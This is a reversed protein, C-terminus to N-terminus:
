KFRKPLESKNQRFLDLYGGEKCLSYFIGDEDNLLNAPSDFQKVTGKDLVLIRDSDIITDIRHAITLITKDKFQSRIAAQVIKDTQVDVAATAEDLILVKSPNLLARALSLLQKQGSSLNSGNDFVKANLGTDFEDEAESEDNLKKPGKADEKPNKKETKMQEIHDKLHALELVKWLQEDTYKRFPDLNERITGEVTSSDQPIINLHRRLDFLGLGSTNVHDIEIHGEIPEILRFIALTLSSKGAGTRGVVGIKEKSKIKLSINKLVPDLNERYRTSYNKFELAGAEPWSDKPRSDEIVFKAEPKLNCYEVIREVSISKTEIDAWCRTIYALMSTISLSQLMVFGLMASGIEHKSGLSALSLLATSFVIISSITQLRISLWRSCCCNINLVKNRMDINYTNKHMFREEQGFARIVEVGNISEQLHSFIPSRRTSSLRKLERSAPIFELRVNNYVFFLIFIVLLMIPLNYSIVALLGIAHFSYELFAMFLWILQKDIVNIDGSFRNLIRGIPTTDFFSMPSRMVSRAMKDHFYSSSGIVCFSWVVVSGILVLASSCVCICVYLTLYFFPNINEGAIANKESWTKIAYSCFITGSIQGATCILFFIVYRYNCAKFFELYVGLRVKGKTEQEVTLGTRKVISDDGLEEETYEHGLSAVSSAGLTHHTAVRVLALDEDETPLFPKPEQDINESEEDSNSPEISQESINKTASSFETLLNTLESDRAMVEDFSGREIIAGSKLLVIEKANHLVNISNTALIITKSALLGKPGLVQAIMNKGVHADVASLVDDLLYVDSRAYVARALAVRAKQGGSLSIGKEGVITRDGDPLMDFDSSLQCSEVTLQYFEKDYKYGFLINEKVSGNLIWPTQPCYAVSGNIKLITGESRVLPVEGLLARLLTSKGSGVRGVICTLEGKRASFDIDTLAVNNFDSQIDSEEDRGFVEKKPSWLFTANKAIVSTDNLKLSDNSREVYDTSLENTLFFESLRDLSVKTEFLSTIANPLIQIPLAVVDFLSLAPFAVSPILINGGLTIYAILCASSILYPVCAWLFLIFSNFIGIQKSTILEKDNRIESLRELMPEEWSYLKISKISNLIDSTLRTRADKYEMNLNYLGFIKSSLTMTLPVSVITTAVGAFTANGLIKYLAMLALVLRIPCSLVDNFNFPLLSVLSVDVALNNVIDGTSKNKREEPSLKMGKEYVMSTLSAEVSRDARFGVIYYRNSAIFRVISVLFMSVAITYGAISHNTSESSSNYTDFFM